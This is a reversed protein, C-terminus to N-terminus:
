TGSGGAPIDKLVVIRNKTNGSFETNLVVTLLGDTEGSWDVVWRMNNLIVVRDKTTNQIIMTIAASEFATSELYNKSKENLGVITLSLTSTRKGGVKYNRTKLQEKKSDIKLPKEALEGLTLFGTSLESTISAQTAFITAIDSESYGAGQPDVGFYVNDGVLTEVLADFALDNATMGTPLTPKSAFPSAM